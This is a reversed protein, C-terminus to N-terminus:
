TKMNSFNINKINNLQGTIRLHCVYGVRTRLLYCYAAHALGGSVDSRGTENRSM